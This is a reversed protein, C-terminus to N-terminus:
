AKTEWIDDSQFDAESVDPGELSIHYCARFVASHHPAERSGLPCHGPDWGRSLLGLFVSLQRESVSQDSHRLGGCPWIRQCPSNGLRGLSREWLRRETMCADSCLSAKVRGPVEEVTLFSPVSLSSLYSWGLDSLRHAPFSPGGQQLTGKQDQGGAAAKEKEMWQGKRRTRKLGVCITLELACILKIRVHPAEPM